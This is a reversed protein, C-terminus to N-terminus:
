GGGEGLWELFMSVALGLQHGRGVSVDMNLLIWMAIHWVLTEKSPRTHIVMSSGSICTHPTKSTSHTFPGMVIFLPCLSQIDVVMLLRHPSIWPRLIVVCACLVNLENMMVMFIGRTMIQGGSGILCNSMTINVQDKENCKVAWCPIECPKLKQPCSQLILWLSVGSLTHTDECKKHIWM